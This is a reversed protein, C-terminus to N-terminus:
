EIQIDGEKPLRNTKKHKFYALIIIFLSIGFVLILTFYRYLTNELIKLQTVNRPLITIAFLIASFCWIMPRSHKSNTLKKFVYCSFYLAISIYSFVSLIWLFVFIADTRQFFRSYEIARTSIYISLLESTQAMYPFVLLLSAISLFLYVASIRISWFSITKFDKKKKLFPPLFYLYSLGCFAFLNSSGILFTEKAGYGLLPFIREINMKDILSFAIVAISILIGPILILNVRSVANFGLRNVLIAGLLFIIVLIYLPINYFYIAKISECFSRLLIASIILFYFLYLVGIVIKLIKGGLFESIDLLDPYQLKQYIRYVLYTIAFGIIAVFLVNLLASSNTTSIFMKPSNVIIHNIMVIAVLAIAEIKGLKSTDM